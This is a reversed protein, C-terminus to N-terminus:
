IEEWLAAVYALEANLAPTLAAVPVTPSILRGQRVELVSMVAGEPAEGRLALEMLHTIIDVRNKALRDAKFYLKVVHPRGNVRLGLEPNVGIEVGHQAYTDAPPRFWSVSKRGWWRKYGSLVAGYNQAKRPDLSANFQATLERKGEDAKHTAVIADRAGKWYDLAPSYAPRRKIQRVRTAKPTGRASVVDVFDTLSLRPM